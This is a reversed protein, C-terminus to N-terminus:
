METITHGSELYDVLMVFKADWFFTAIAVKGYRKVFESIILSNDTRLLLNQQQQNMTEINTAGM